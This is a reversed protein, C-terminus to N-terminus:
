SLLRLTIAKSIYLLSFGGGVSLLLYLMSSAFEKHDALLLSENAFTSFTTFGGCFGTTLFLLCASSLLNGKQAFATFVGILACGALNAALTSMPINLIVTASLLKGLLFRMCTGLFGGTGVILLSKIM